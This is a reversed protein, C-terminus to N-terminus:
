SEKSLVTSLSVEKTETKFKYSVTVTIKKVLNKLKGENGEIESYDEVKVTKYYSTENENEDKIYGDRETFQNENSYTEYRSFGDNKIQEIEAIAYYTAQSKREVEQTSSNLNYFLMAIISVFIFIVVISVAIDVGTFGDQSRLKM